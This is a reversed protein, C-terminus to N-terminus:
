EQEVVDDAELYNEAYEIATMLKKLDQKLNSPRIKFLWGKGYPDTNALGLDGSIPNYFFEADNETYMPNVESIVGDVPSFLGVENSGKWITGCESNASVTSGAEPSAGSSLPEEGWSEWDPTIGVVVVVTSDTKEVRAWVREDTYYLGKMVVM